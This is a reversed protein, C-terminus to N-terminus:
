WDVARWQVKNCKTCTRGQVFTALKLGVLQTVKGWATWRCRHWRVFEAM